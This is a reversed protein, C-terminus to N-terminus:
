KRATIRFTTETMTIMLLFFVALFVPLINFNFHSGLFGFLPSMFTSGIYASAMQIGIIKGSNEAGFNYPTSHIICPYIPACGLGIIIFGTIPVVPTNIPLLLAIIGCFLVFTGLLIMKRDGLKNMVFGGLFRGLTMGIYFLAAFQAATDAAINRVETMYTSAWNMATAEAACYAFFGILLFPVGKIKLVGILGKQQSTNETITRNVKWVPLTVLLLIAIGLQIFGILRYGMYWATNALSYSMVFPSVITGVGWFCHLWSMHRSSYHLAVYNNLAADIAGAGLGYPISFVIMMWFHNSVSFGLLALATLFVSVVTVIRTGFKRTMRDSFLSAIVTGGSIIMSLIGMFSIPVNLSIHMVPWGSGLLSDPLGLSIFAIYILALLLTYM